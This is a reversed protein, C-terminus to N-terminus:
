SILVHVFGASLMVLGSETENRLVPGIGVAVLLAFGCLHCCLRWPLLPVAVAWSLRSRSGALALRGVSCSGPFFWGPALLSPCSVSHGNTVAAPQARPEHTLLCLGSSCIVPCSLPKTGQGPCLFPGAVPAALPTLGFSHGRRSRQRWSQATARLAPWLLPPFM